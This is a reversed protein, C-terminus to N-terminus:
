HSSNLRTSKRDGHCWWGKRCANLVEHAGDYLSTTGHGLSSYNQVYQAKRPVFDDPAPWGMDALIDRRIGESTGHLNEPFYVKHLSGMGVQHSTRGRGSIM